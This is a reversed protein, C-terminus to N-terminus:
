SLFQSNSYCIGLFTSAAKSISYHMFSSLNEQFTSSLALVAIFPCNFTVGTFALFSFLIYLSIEWRRVVYIFICTYLTPLFM